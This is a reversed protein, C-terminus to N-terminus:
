RIMRPLWMMLTAGFIGVAMVLTSIFILSASVYKLVNNPSDKARLYLELLLLSIPLAYISISLFTLFPGTFTEPDFGVAGQNVFIWFMLGVRFFWVGNVVMYLRLAWIRHTVFDRARAYYIALLAFAMIYFAQISISVHQLTDGVSGRTWVMTLGDLSILVAVTVYVRGLWRHFTPFRNRVQPMLQLSGGLIMITAFFIHLGVVLNGKWDGAVYGHPLVKNWQEFDGHLTATGYFAFIYSVFIWQGLTAVVFWFTVSIDLIRKANITKLTTKESTLLNSNMCLLKLIVSNQVMLLVFNM